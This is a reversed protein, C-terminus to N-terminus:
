VRSDQEQNIYGRAIGKRGEEIPAGAEEYAIEFDSGLGKWGRKKQLYEAGPSPTGGIALLEGEPRKIVSTSSLSHKKEGGRGVVKMPRSQSVYRGTRLDFEPPMTEDESDSQGIDGDEDAVGGTTPRDSVHSDKSSDDLLVQWDSTWAGTWIRESDSQLALGLEFPTIVPKWFDKSDILSSEWCGIVVWAGIESFNAVKAANLKGVVFTYSKKGAKLIQDRIHEAIHLYNKVSLTNILIGFISETSVSTLLAYRRNLARRLSQASNTQVSDNSHSDTPFVHISAVRSSLTLLLSNPPQSIHFLHWGGLSDTDAAVEEPVTRNPLPSSPDHRVDAQHVNSYGDERLSAVIEPLLYQYTVDAMLVVKSDKDRFATRFDDYLRQLNDLPQHTFCYIVPLRATPSLCARGYHVVADADVHEGAIEDVCCAGYSTDGLIYFKTTLDRSPSSGPATSEETPKQQDKLGRDLLGLVRPAAQLMGDPFQLAVRQYRAARIESLTRDIEYTIRLREDPVHDLAEDPTAEVQEEIIRSDSSSLAPAHSIAGM